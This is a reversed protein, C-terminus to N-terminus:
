VHALLIEGFMGEFPLFAISRPGSVDYSMDSGGVPWISGLPHIWPISPCIPTLAEHAVHHFQCARAHRRACALPSGAITALHLNEPVRPRRASLISKAKSLPASLIEQVKARRRGQPYSLGLGRISGPDGHGALAAKAHEQM